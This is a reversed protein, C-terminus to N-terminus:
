GARTCPVTQNGKLSTTAEVGPTHAENRFLLEPFNLKFVDDPCKAEFYGVKKGKYSYTKGLKFNFGLLSGDGGAIVPIKAVAHIGSGKRTITVATVIATPAPVTVSTVIGLTVDGNKKGDNLVFLPSTIKIPEHEPFAIEFRAKGRGILSSRCAEELRRGDDRVDIHASCVPLGNVRVRIDKDIDVVAERLAPPHTDDSTSVKGFINAIVPVYDNRPLKSPSVSAGFTAALPPFGPCSPALLCTEVGSAASAPVLAFAVVALVLILSRRM